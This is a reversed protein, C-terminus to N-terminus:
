GKGTFNVNLTGTGSVSTYVLRVWLSGTLGAEWTWNGAGSVAVTSGTYDSWNVVNASANTLAGSPTVVPPVIDSSVQIKLSGTVSGGTWVAQISFYAMEDLYMGNSNLSGAMNGNVLLPVKTSM